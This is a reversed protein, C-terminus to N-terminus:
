DNMIVYKINSGEIISSIKYNKFESIVIECFEKLLYNNSSAFEVSNFIVSNPFENLIKIIEGRSEFLLKINSTDIFYNNDKKNIKINASQKIHLVENAVDQWTKM